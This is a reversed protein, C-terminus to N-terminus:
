DAKFKSWLYVRIVASLTKINGIGEVNEMNMIKELDWPLFEKEPIGARFHFGIIYRYFTWICGLCDCFFPHVIKNKMKFQPPLKGIVNKLCM